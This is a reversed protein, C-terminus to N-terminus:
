LSISKNQVDSISKINLLTPKLSMLKNYFYDRSLASLMKTGGLMNFYRSIYQGRADFAKDFVDPNDLLFKLVGIMAERHRILGLEGFRLTRFDQSRFLIETLEFPNSEEEDYTLYVHWWLGAFTTRMFHQNEHWHNLIYQEDVDDTMVKPWRKQVYPFLDVHCLYVWLDPLSAVLPTLDKYAKFLEVASKFDDTPDMRDLLGEPQYVNALRKVQTADYPFEEQQYDSINVNKRLMDMYSHKFVKQLEM